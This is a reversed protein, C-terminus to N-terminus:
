QEENLNSLKIKYKKFCAEANDLWKEAKLIKKNIIPIVIDNKLFYQENKRKVIGITKIIKRYHKSYFDIKQQRIKKIRKKVKIKFSIIYFFYPIIFLALTICTMKKHKKEDYLTTDIQDYPLELFYIFNAIDSCEKELNCIYDNIKLNIVSIEYQSFSQGNEVTILDVILNKLKKEIDHMKIDLSNIWLQYTLDNLDTEFNNNLLDENCFDNAVLGRKKNYRLSHLSNEIYKKTLTHVHNSDIIATFIQDIKEM